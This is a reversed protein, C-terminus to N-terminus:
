VAVGHTRTWLTWRALWAPFGMHQYIFTIVVVLFVALVDTQRRPSRLVDRWCNHVYLACLPPLLLPYMYLRTRRTDSRCSRFLTNGAIGMGQGAGLSALGQRFLYARRSLIFGPPRAPGGYYQTGRCCQWRSASLLFLRPFAGSASTTCLAEGRACPSAVCCPWCSPCRLCLVHCM